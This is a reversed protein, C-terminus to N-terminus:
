QLWRYMAYILGAQLNGKMQKMRYTKIQELVEEPYENPVGNAMVIAM